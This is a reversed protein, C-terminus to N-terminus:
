EKELAHARLAIKNVAQIEVVHFLAQFVSPMLFINVIILDPNQLMALAEISQRLNVELLQFDLM